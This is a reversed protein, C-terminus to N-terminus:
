FKLEVEPVLRNCLLSSPFDSCFHKHEFVLACFLHSTGKCSLKADSKM